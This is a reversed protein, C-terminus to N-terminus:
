ELKALEEKYKEILKPGRDPWTLTSAELMIARRTVVDKVLERPSDVRGSIDSLSWGAGGKFSNEPYYNITISNDAEAQKKIPKNNM